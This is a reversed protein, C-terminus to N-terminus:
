AEDRPADPLRGDPVEHRLQRARVARLQRRDDLEVAVYGNSEWVELITGACGDHGDHDQWLVVRDGSRLGSAKLEAIAEDIDQRRM